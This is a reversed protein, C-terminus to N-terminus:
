DNDPKERPGFMDKINKKWNLIAQQHLYLLAEMSCSMCCNHFGNFLGSIDVVIPCARSISFSSSINIELSHLNSNHLLLNRCSILMGCQAWTSVMYGETDLDGRNKGLSMTLAASVLKPHGVGEKGWENELCRRLKCM